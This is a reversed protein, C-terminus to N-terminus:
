FANSEPTSLSFITTKFASSNINTSGNMSGVTRTLNALDLLTRRGKVFM